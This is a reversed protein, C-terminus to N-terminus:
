KFKVLKGLAKMIKAIFTPEVKVTLNKGEDTKEYNIDLNESDVELHTKGDKRTLDIDVNKTDIHLNIDKKKREKAM